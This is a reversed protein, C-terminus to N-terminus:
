ICEFQVHKNILSKYQRKKINLIKTAKLRNEFFFKPFPFKLIGRHHFEEIFFDRAHEETDTIAHIEHLFGM